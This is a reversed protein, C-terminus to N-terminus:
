ITYEGSFTFSLSLSLWINVKLNFNFKGSFITAIIPSNGLKTELFILGM